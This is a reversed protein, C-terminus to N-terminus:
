ILIFPKRTPTTRKRRLLNPAFPAEGEPVARGPFRLYVVVAVGIRNHDGRHQKVFALDDASLTSLRILEGWDDPFALLELREASTLLERRPM